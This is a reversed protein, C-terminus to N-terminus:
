RKSHHCVATIVALPIMGRRTMRQRAGQPSMHLARAVHRWTHTPRTRGVRRLSVPCRAAAMLRDTLDDSVKRVAEASWLLALLDDAFEARHRHALDRVAREVARFADEPLEGMDAVIGLHDHSL